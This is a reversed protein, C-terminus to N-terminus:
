KSFEEKIRFDCEEGSSIRSDAEIYQFWKFFIFFIYLFIVQINRIFGL